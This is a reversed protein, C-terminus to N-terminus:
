GHQAGRGPPCPCDQGWRGPEPAAPSASGDWPITWWGVSCGWCRRGGDRWVHAPILAASTPLGLCHWQLWRWPLPAARHPLPQQPPGVLAGEKRKQVGLRARSLLPRCQGLAQRLRGRDWGLWVRGPWSSRATLFWCTRWCWGPAGQAWVSSCWLCVPASLGEPGKCRLPTVVPLVAGDCPWPM